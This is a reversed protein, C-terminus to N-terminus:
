LRKILDKAMRVAVEVAGEETYLENTEPDLSGMLRLLIDTAIRAEMEKNEEIKEFDWYYNLGKGVVENGASDIYSVCDSSFRTTDGSYSIIDVIEGTKRNRAKM